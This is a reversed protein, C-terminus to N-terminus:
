DRSRWVLCGVAVLMLLVGSTPEPVAADGGGGPSPEGFNQRWSNYGGPEGGFSGPDKRWAVYDAADVSGDGNHDGPVGTSVFKVIGGQLRTDNPGAYYFRVDQTGGVTFPSGLSLPDSGPALTTMGELRLESLLNASSGPPQVESWGSGAPDTPPNGEADDLSTWGGLNLSGSPSRVEYYSLDFGVAQENLIRMAGTTTNVELTPEVAVDVALADVYVSLDAATVRRGKLFLKGTADTYAIDSFKYQDLTTPPQNVTFSTQVMLADASNGDLWNAVRTNTTSTMTANIGDYAYISVAYATNPQLTGGSIKIDLGGTPGASGGVFLMDDYVENSTADGVTPV